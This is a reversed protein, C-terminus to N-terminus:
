QHQQCSAKKAAREAKKQTKWEEVPVANSINSCHWSGYYNVHGTEGLIYILNTFNAYMIMNDSVVCYSTASNVIMCKINKTSGNYRLLNSWALLLLLRWGISGNM